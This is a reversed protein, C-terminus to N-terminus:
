KTVVVDASKVDIEQESLRTTEICFREYDAKGNMLNPKKSSAALNYM